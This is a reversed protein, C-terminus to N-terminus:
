EMGQRQKGTPPALCESLLQDTLSNLVSAFFADLVGAKEEAESVTNGGVDLLSHLNDKFPNLAACHNHM